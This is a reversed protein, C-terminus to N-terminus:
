VQGGILAIDQRSVEVLRSATKYQRDLEAIFREVQQTRIRTYHRNTSEIRHLLVALETLRASFGSCQRMVQDPQERYFNRIAAAIIDLEAEIEARSGLYGPAGLAGLPDAGLAAVPTVPAEVSQAPVDPVNARPAFREEHMQSVPM